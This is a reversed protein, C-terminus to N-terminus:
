KHRYDVEPSASLDLLSPVKQLATALGDVGFLRRASARAAGQDETSELADLIEEAFRPATDAVRFLRKVEDPMGCIGQTATVIPAPMMLMEIAKVHIGSGTRVPNVLVRAGAFIPLVDPPDAILTVGPVECLQKMHADPNSGAIVFRTAPRRTLVLPVIERVLWEIGRVNNPTTLNGVFVVDAPTASAPPANQGSGLASEAIPPLWSIRSVGHRKWYELDDASLDFVWEAHKLMDSEFRKLGICALRWALRDRWQRAARTQRAMYLHEINHSRYVYSVGLAGAARRAEHGPYPGECWVIDPKFRGLTEDLEMRQASSLRRSTVHSPWRFLLLLRTLAEFSGRGTPYFRLDAVSERVVRVEEARPINGPGPRHWAVLLVECGIRRLALIRRWVDARGGHHPPYPFDPAFVAIRANM